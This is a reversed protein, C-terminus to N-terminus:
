IRVCIKKLKQQELAADTAPKGTHHELDTDHQQEPEEQNKDGSDMREALQERQKKQIEEISATAATPQTENGENPNADSRRTQKPVTEPPASKRKPVPEATESKDKFLGSIAGIIALVALIIEM